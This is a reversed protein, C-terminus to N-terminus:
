KVRLGNLDGDIRTLRDVSDTSGLGTQGDTSLGASFVQGENSLM